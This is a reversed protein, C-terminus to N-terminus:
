TRRYASDLRIERRDIMEEIIKVKGAVFRNENEKNDQAFSLNKKM